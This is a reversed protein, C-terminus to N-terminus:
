IYKWYDEGFADQAIERKTDYNLSKFEKMLELFKKMDDVKNVFENKKNEIHEKNQKDIKEEYEFYDEISEIKNVKGDLFREVEEIEIEKFKYYTTNGFYNYHSDVVEKKVKIAIGSPQNRYYTHYKESDLYIRQNYTTLRVGEVNNEKLISRIKRCVSTLLNDLTAKEVENGSYDTLILEGENVLKELEKFKM